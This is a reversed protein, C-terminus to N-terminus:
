PSVGIPHNIEHFMGFLFPHNPPLARNTELKTLRKIRDVIKSTSIKSPRLKKEACNLQQSKEATFM